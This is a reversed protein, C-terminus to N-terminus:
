QFFDHHLLPLLVCESMRHCQYLYELADVDEVMDCNYDFTNCNNRMPQPTTNTCTM